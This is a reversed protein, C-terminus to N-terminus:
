PRSLDLARVTYYAQEATVWLPRHHPCHWVDRMFDYVDM